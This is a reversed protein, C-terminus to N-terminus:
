GFHELITYRSHRGGLTSDVLVFENVSWHMPPPPDRPTLRNVKRALTMHPIFARRARPLGLEHSIRGLDRALEALAPPTEHLGLWLTRTRQWYGYQDLTLEFPDLPLASVRDILPEILDEPTLGLFHLTMHLNEAPTPKGGTGRVEARSARVIRTRLRDEPWLAFFLRRKGSRSM